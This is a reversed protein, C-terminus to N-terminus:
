LYFNRPNDLLADAINKKSKLAGLIKEDITKPAILDIYTVNNKQGIRHARDESQWRTDANFDNSYYIVTSAVALNLGTGGAAPQALFVKTESDTMFKKKNEDRDTQKVDGYYAVFGIKNKKLAESIKQIDRVFRSWIIVKGRAEEICEMLVDIRNSHIDITKKNGNEDETILHGCIVQQMKMLKSAAMLSATDYSGESNKAEDIKNLEIDLEQKISKYANKQDTTLEVYRTTYIKEPLDLCEEKTIRFAYTAIKNELEKVADPKYGVIQRNEFGGMYCYYNRFTYFSNFGLIKQNLFKLQTYLDVYQNTIPAGSMIRRYPAMTSLKLATKTRNSSPTKIRTSEDMLWICKRSGLVKKINEIGKKNSLSEINFAVFILENKPMSQIRNIEKISSTKSARYVIGTYNINEPIHEPVQEEIWQSHVGNPATILVCNIKDQMFLYSAVDIGVKTKGTGMEMFYAFEEQDKSIEFAKLQHSFPPLRFPFDSKFESRSKSLQSKLEKEKIEKQKYEEYLSAAEGEWKINSITSIQEINKRSNEVMLSNNIFKSYGPLNISILRLDKFEGNLFLKDKWLKVKVDGM